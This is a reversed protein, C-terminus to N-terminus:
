SRAATASPSPTASSRTPASPPSSTARALHEQWGRHHDPGEQPRHHAPLRGRRVGRRRGDAAVRRGADGRHGRPQAPLRPLRRWRTGPDRRGRRHAGRQRPVGRRRHRHAFPRAPQAHDRRHEREPRVGRLDRARHLPLLAAGRPRHPRRRQRPHARRRLRARRAAQQPRAPRRSPATAGAGTPHARRARPPRLRPPRHPDGVTGRRAAAGPKRRDGEEGARGDEGVRPPRRLLPHSAGRAPPSRPQPARRPVM